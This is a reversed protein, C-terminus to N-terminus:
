PDSSIKAQPGASKHDQPRNIYNSHALQLSIGQDFKLGLRSSTWELHNPDEQYWEGNSTTRIKKIGNEMRPPESRRSVMRWELHNPDEQYWEGNSTTRIKKIGNEM